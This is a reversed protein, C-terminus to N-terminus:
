EVTRRAWAGTPVIRAKAAAERDHLNKLLTNERAGVPGKKGSPDNIMALGHDVLVGAFDGVGRPRVIVELSGGEDIRGRTLLTLPKGSLYEKTFEQAQRGITRADEISIGFYDAYPKLQKDDAQDAPPCSAWLLRVFYTKDGQKVKFRAGSNGPDSLYEADHLERFGEMGGGPRQTKPPGAILGLPNELIQRAREAEATYDRAADPDTLAHKESLAQMREAYATVVPSMVDRLKHVYNKELDALSDQGAPTGGGPNTSPAGSDIGPPVLRIEKLNMVGGGGKARTVKLALRAPPRLQIAPLVATSWETWGGTSAVSTLRRNQDAGPLSSDEFFELDGGTTLDPQPAGLTTRPPDGMDAVAYVLTVQYPGAAFKSLDWTATSGATKWGTLADLNRDYNVAGNIRADAPKLVVANEPVGDDGAITAYLRVLNERRRQAALAQEYDGSAAADRAIGALANAFQESLVKSRSLALAEAQMRLQTLEGPDASAAPQQGM